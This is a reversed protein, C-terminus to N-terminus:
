DSFVTMVRGPATYKYAYCEGNEVLAESRLYHIGGYQIAVPWQGRWLIVISHPTSAQIDSLFASEIITEAAKPAPKKSKYNRNM